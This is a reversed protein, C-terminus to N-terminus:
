KQETSHNSKDGNLSAYRTAAFEDEKRSINWIRLEAVMGPLYDDVGLAEALSPM